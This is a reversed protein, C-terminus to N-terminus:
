GNISVEGFISLDVPIELLETIKERISQILVNGSFLEQYPSHIVITM